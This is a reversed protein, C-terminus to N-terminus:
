LGSLESREALALMVERGRVICPVSVSQKRGSRLNFLGVPVTGLLETVICPRAELM